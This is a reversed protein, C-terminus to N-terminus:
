CNFEWWWKVFMYYLITAWNKLFRKIFAKLSTWFEWRNNLWFLFPIVFWFALMAYGAIHHGLEFLYSPPTVNACWQHYDLGDCFAGSLSQKSISWFSQWHPDSLSLSWGLPLKQFAMFLIFPPFIAVLPSFTTITVNQTWQMSAWFFNTMQSWIFLKWYMKGKVCLTLMVVYSVVEWFVTVLPYTTASHYFPNLLAWLLGYHIPYTETTLFGDPSTLLTALIELQLVLLSIIFRVDRMWYLRM